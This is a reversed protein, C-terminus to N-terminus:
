EETAKRIAARASDLANFERSAQEADRTDGACDAFADVMERLADLMDPTAAILRANAEGDMSDSFAVAISYKGRACIEFDAGVKPKIIKWPGPTHTM